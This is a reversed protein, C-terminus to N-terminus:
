VLTDLLIMQQELSISESDLQIFTTKEKLGWREFLFSSAFIKNLKNVLDEGQIMKEPFPIDWVRNEIREKCTELSTMLVLVVLRGEYKKMRRFVSSGLRGLGTCEIIQRTDDHTIAHVFASKAKADGPMTGDSINRRYDDIALYGWDQYKQIFQQSLTTKGSGINGLVLIKM